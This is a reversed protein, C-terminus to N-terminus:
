RVRRRHHTRIAKAIGMREPLAKYLFFATFFLGVIGPLLSRKNPYVAYVALCLLLTITLWWMSLYTRLNM